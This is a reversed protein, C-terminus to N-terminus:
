GDSRKRYEGKAMKIFIEGPRGDPYMGVTIYGKHGAINFKHTISPREDPLKQRRPQFALESEAKAVSESGDTKSTSLPQIRKCGDRYVALAKLGLRWGDIFINEIDEVTADHPLNVTKSIAGSLFPQVAAMMRVHGMPTIARTGGRAKFACDFVSLHADQLGPAQEITDHEDIYDVIDAVQSSSYGLRALAAPVTRNVMRMMGGGSLRKYKVLAIDPEVGTTDCDMMFAITGTPALVTVQSNRYGHDRGLDLAAEWAAQAAHQIPSEPLDRACRRHKEIVELMGARNSSYGEFSGQAAAIEASMAYAQGGMLATISAAIDRGEESDYPLAWRMLLAGLNAYGLGLPRYRHSNVAIKETPYSARGVLIEQALITLRVAQTFGDVDFDQNEDLFSLLNLSALNCASDDLFMYESCPNSGNIRGSSPCTHWQNITTDYQLGPDGCDWAAQAIARWLRRAPMSERLSTDWVGVTEWDSDREVALMLDDTVRVSHNANQFFVSRYAEGNFSGDYGAEILAHAKKEEKAKSEVFDLIDPHGANLIVM